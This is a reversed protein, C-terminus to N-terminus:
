YAIIRLMISFHLNFGCDSVVVYDSFHSCNLCFLLLLQHPHLSFPVNWMAPLFTFYYEWKPFFLETIELFPLCFNVCDLLGLIIVCPFHFCIGLSMYM